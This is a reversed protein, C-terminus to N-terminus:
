RRVGPEDLRSPETEVSILLLNWGRDPVADDLYLDVKAVDDDAANFTGLAMYEGTADNAVWVQYHEGRLQPLGTAALHVEGEKAIFEAVATANTPGWTSIGTLYSLVISVPNGNAAAPAAPGGLMGALATVLAGAVSAATRWQRM